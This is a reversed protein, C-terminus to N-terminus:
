KGGRAKDARYPPRPPAKGTHTAPNVKQLSDRPPRAGGPRAQDHYHEEDEPHPDQVIPTKSHGPM